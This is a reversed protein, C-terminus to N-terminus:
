EEALSTSETMSWDCTVVNSHCSRWASADRWIYLATMSCTTDNRWFVWLFKSRKCFRISSLSTSSTVLYVSNLMVQIKYLFLCIVWKPNKGRLIGRDLLTWATSEDVGWLNEEGLDSVFKDNWFALLKPCIPSGSQGFCPLMYLSIDQYTLVFRLLSTKCDLSCNSWVENGHKKPNNIKLQKKYDHM